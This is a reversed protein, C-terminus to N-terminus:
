PQGGSPPGPLRLEVRTGEGPRSDVILDGCVKEARERMVQLGFHSRDESLPGSPDFGQGDDEVSVFLYDDPRYIRVWARSARAHRRANTLAEQIIRIVQLGTNGDLLAAADADAELVVDLDYHLRYDALYEQLSSLFGMTPLAMARLNFISERVVTYAESITDELEELSARAQTVKNRALLDDLLSVRLQLTGLVQAVDDHIERALRAREELVALQEVRRYLRANEIAPAITNAVGLALEIEEETFSRYEDYTIVLGVGVVRDRLLCPVALISRFGHARMAEHNIRPDTQADYSAHPQKDKVALRVLNMDSLPIRRKMLERLREASWRPLKDTAAWIRGTEGDDDIVFVLCHQVGVAAAIGNAAQNLVRELDLSSGVARAMELMLATRQQQQRLHQNIADSYGRVIDRALLHIYRRLEVRARRLGATGSQVISRVLPFVVDELLLVAMIIEGIDIGLQAYELSVGLDAQREWVTDPEAGQLLDRLVALAVMHNALIEESPRQSYKAGPMQQRIAELWSDAIEDRHEDLLTILEQVTDTQGHLNQM